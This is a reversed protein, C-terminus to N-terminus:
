PARYIRNLKLLKGLCLDVKIESHRIASQISYAKDATKRHIPDVVPVGQKNLVVAVDPSKTNVGRRIVVAVEGSYLKVYSGPHYIGVAKILATGAGDMQAKADFFIAKMAQSNSSPQRTARPALRAAFVDARQILGVLAEFKHSVHLPDQVQIHHKRVIELWLADDVGLSTLSEVSRQAHRDIAQRQHADPPVKQQALADQLTAMGINMTLSARILLAIDEAPWHLVEKATLASIASVLLSHTASYLSKEHASLYFLCLLMDDPNIDVQEAIVRVISGLRSAFQDGNTMGLLSQCAQVLNRWDVPAAEDSGIGSQGSYRVGL